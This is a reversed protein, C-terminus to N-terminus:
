ESADLAKLVDPILETHEELDRLGSLGFRSCIENIDSMTLEGAVMRPTVAEMLARMTGPAAPPASPAQPDATPPASLRAHVEQASAAKPRTKKTPPAEIVEEDELDEAPFLFADLAAVMVSTQTVRYGNAETLSAAQDELAEALRAPLRILKNKGMM